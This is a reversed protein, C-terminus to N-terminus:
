ANMAKRARRWVIVAITLAAAVPFLVWFATDMQDGASTALELVNTVASAQAAGLALFAGALALRQNHNKKM